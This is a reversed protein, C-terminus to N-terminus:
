VLGVPRPEYGPLVVDLQRNGLHVRTVEALVDRFDTTHMLDRGEHLQEPELGPWQGVLKRPIGDAAGGVAGGFALVCNAWGHDTGGTGNQAATRGFESVVLVLVDGARDELDRLFADLAGSLARVLQIYQGGAAGGQNQHTDWGGFDIGAVELGVDARVTRAVDRFRRALEGDPYEVSSSYPARAIKQLERLADLAARGGRRVQVNEAEGAYAAELAALQGARSGHEGPEGALLEDLTRVAYAQVQGRLFRPLADGFSVARVPGHGESTQLHRNLWGDSHLTNELVGTEWVDQEEFHSRTNRAHGVAHVAVGTGSEFHPLLARAGPNLGFSGDLDLVGNEAGPRPVALWDRLRYYAPEAHPVILNLGDAGGRLFVLVLVKGPATKALPRALGAPALGLGALTAGSAGLFRRRTLEM